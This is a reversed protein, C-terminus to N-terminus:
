GVMYTGTGAAILLDKDNRFETRTVAVKNGTRLISANTLFYKGRGGRLYDVRLDITGVRTLRAIIEDSSRGEMKKLIGMSAMMGGTLDIVASIVGGHLIGKAFNGIFDEKMNIRVCVGDAELSVVQIGLHKNFPLKDEYVERLVNLLNSFDAKKDSM